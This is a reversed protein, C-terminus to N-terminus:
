LDRLTPTQLHPKAARYAASLREAIDPHSEGLEIVATMDGVARFFELVSPEGEGAKYNLRSLRAEEEVVNAWADQGFTRLQVEVMRGSERVHLHVARYGTIRSNRAWDRVRRVDLENELQAQLADVQEQDDLVSRVGGIDVMDALKGPERTLKDITTELRKPRFSVM